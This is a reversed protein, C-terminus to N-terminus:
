RLRRKREDDGLDIIITTGKPKVVEETVLIEDITRVQAEGSEVKSALLDIFDKFAQTLEGGSVVNANVSHFGVIVLSGNDLYNQNLFTESGSPDDFDATFLNGYDIFSPPLGLGSTHRILDCYPKLGTWDNAWTFSSLSGGPVAWVRSGKVFGNDNLWDTAKIIADIAEGTTMDSSGPGDTLLYEHAWSHNAILHGQSQMSNLNSLTLESGGIVTNPNVFFTANM